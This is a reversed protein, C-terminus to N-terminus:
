RRCGRRYPGSIYARRRGYSGYGGWDDYYYNSYYRRPYGYRYYSRTRYSASAVNALVFLVILTAFVM